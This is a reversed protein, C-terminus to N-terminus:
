YNYNYYNNNIIIIIIVIFIVLLMTFRTFVNCKNNIIVNYASKM